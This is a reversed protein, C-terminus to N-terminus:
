ALCSAIMTAFAPLGLRAHALQAGPQAPQRTVDSALDCAVSFRLGREGFCQGQDIAQKALLTGVATSVLEIGQMCGLHLADALALGPRAEFEAHLDRDGGGVPLCRAALEDEAHLAQPAIRIVAVGQGALDFLDLPDGANGDGTGIDIAAIAAVTGFGLVSLDKDGALLAADRGGDAAFQASAGGDFGDDAVHLDIAMRPSVEQEADAAIGDVGDEGADAM